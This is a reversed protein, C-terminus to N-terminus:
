RTGYIRPHLHDHLIRIAAALPVAVFMGLIGGLSFGAIFAVIVLLAPLKVAAGVVRPYILNLIVNSIVIYAIAVLLAKSPSISLGVLVAPVAGLLPGLYPVLATVGALLGLAIAFPLGLATVAIGSAAGIMAAIALQGRIYGHLMSKIDAWIAEFEPRYSVPVLRRIEGTIGRADLAMLFAVILLLFLQFLTTVAQLGLGLANGFQGLAFQSVHTQVQDAVARLDVQQGMITVGKLNTLQAQAAAAIAPLQNILQSIETTLLPMFLAVLIAVVGMVAALILLIALIRPVRREALWDVAPTMVFALFAGLIFAGIVGQILYLLVVALIVAVLAFWVQHAHHSPRRRELPGDRAEAQDSRSGAAPEGHLPAPDHIKTM